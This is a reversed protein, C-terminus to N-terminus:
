LHAALLRALTSPSKRRKQKTALRQLDRQLNILLPSFPLHLSAFASRLRAAYRQIIGFAKPLSLEAAPDDLSFEDLLWHFVLLALLRAYFQCLFRHPGCHAIADLKAQSKWLKFILEVQWRLRYLLMIHPASLWDRPVNTIFLSWALLNLHRASCTYGKHRAKRKAQRRREAVVAAPLKQFILRVNLRSSQGLAVDVDGLPGATSLLTELDLAPGGAFPAYVATQTLLRSIFYAGALALKEFVQQKFFGLDFLHLTASQALNVHQQCNQDAECGAVVELAAINGQRYDFSLQIKASARKDKYDQGPFLGKLRAPLMIISSDLLYIAEFRSMVGKPLRCLRPLQQLGVQFLGKLLAVAGATLRQQLGPVSIDVGLESCSQAVDTLSGLPKELWTLVLAQVFVSAKLKSARQVFGSVRGQEEAWKGLVLGLRESQRSYKDNFM